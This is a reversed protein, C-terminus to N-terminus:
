YTDFDRESAEGQASRYHLRVRAFAHVQVVARRLAFRAFAIEIGVAEAEATAGPVRDAPAVQAVAHAPEADIPDDLHLWQGDSERSGFTEVHQVPQVAADRRQRACM